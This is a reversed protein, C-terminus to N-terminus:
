TSVLNLCRSQNAGSISQFLCLLGRLCISGGTPYPDEGAGQGGALHHDNIGVLWACNHILECDAIGVDQTDGANRTLQPEWQWTSDLLGAFSTSSAPLEEKEALYSM